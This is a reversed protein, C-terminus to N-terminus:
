RKSNCLNDLIVVEHGQQLLQVCTHSGIYGSGGTVLVKM